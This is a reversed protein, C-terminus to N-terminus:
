CSLKFHSSLMGRIILYIPASLISLQLWHWLIQWDRLIVCQIKLAESLNSRLKEARWNRREVNERWRCFTYEIGSTLTFSLGGLSMHTMHPHHLQWYLTVPALEVMMFKFTLVLEVTPNWTTQLHQRHQLPGALMANVCGTRSDDVEKCDSIDMSILPNGFQAIWM